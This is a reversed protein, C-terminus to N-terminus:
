IYVIITNLVADRNFRDASTATTSVCHNFRGQSKKRAM